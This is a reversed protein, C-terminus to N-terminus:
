RGRRREIEEGKAVVRRRAEESLDDMTLVPRSAMYDRRENPSMAALTEVTVPELDSMGRRYASFAVM